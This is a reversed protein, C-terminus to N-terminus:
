GAPAQVKVCVETRLKEAPVENCDDLYIELGPMGLGLNDYPGFDQENHRALPNDSIWFPKAADTQCLVLRNLAVVFLTCDKM